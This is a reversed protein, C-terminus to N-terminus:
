ILCKSVVRFEPMETYDMDIRLHEKFWNLMKGFVHDYITDLQYEPGTLLFQQDVEKRYHHNLTDIRKALESPQLCRLTTSWKWFCEPFYLMKKRDAILVTLTQACGDQFAGTMDITSM